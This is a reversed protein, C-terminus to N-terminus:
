NSATIPTAEVTLTACDVIQSVRYFSTSNRAQKYGPGKVCGLLTGNEARVLIAYPELRHGPTFVYRKGPGLRYDRELVDCTRPCEWVVVTQDTDNWYIVDPSLFFVSEDTAIETYLALGCCSLLVTIVLAIMVKQWWPLPPLQPRDRRGGKTPAEIAM